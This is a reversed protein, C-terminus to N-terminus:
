IEHEEALHLFLSAALAMIHIGIAVGVLLIFIGRVEAPAMPLPIIGYELFFGGALLAVLGIGAFLLAGTSDMAIRVKHSARAEASSLDYSLALLIMSAGVIVGGQFGGGPSVPGHIIVYLGFLQIFPVLIRGITQIVVTTM